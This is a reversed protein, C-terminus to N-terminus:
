PKREIARRIEAVAKEVDAVAPLAALRISDLDTRLTSYTEVTSFRHKRTCERRRRVTPAYGPQEPPMTRSDIVRTNSGCEPCPLKIAKM